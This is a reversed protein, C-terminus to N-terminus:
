LILDVPALMTVFLTEPVTVPIVVSISAPINM